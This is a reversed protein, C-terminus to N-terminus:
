LKPKVLQARILARPNIYGAPASEFLGDEAGPFRLYPFAAELEGAGLQRVDLEYAAAMDAAYAAPVSAAPAYLWGAPTYFRIGSEAEIQRYVGISQEALATWVEGRGLRGALRGQDYHSAFVGDHSLLDAPEDPGIVAVREAESSLYKVAAAGFLGKGIVLYDFM